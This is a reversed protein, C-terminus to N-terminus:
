SFDVSEDAESADVKSPKKYFLPILISTVVLSILIIYFCIQPLIGLQNNIGSLSPNNPLIKAVEALPYTALVATALGRPNIATLIGNFQSM